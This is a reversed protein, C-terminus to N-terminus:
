VNSMASTKIAAITSKRRPLGRANLETELKKRTADAEANLKDRTEAALAQARARADARLKEYGALAARGVPGEAEQGTLRRRYAPKAGRHDRRAAPDGLKSIIVYLAVFFIM